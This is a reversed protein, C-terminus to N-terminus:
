LIDEDGFALNDDHESEEIPETLDVDGFVQSVAFLVESAVTLHCIDVFKFIDAVTFSKECNNLVGEVQPNGFAGSLKAPTFMPVNAVMARQLYHEKLAM